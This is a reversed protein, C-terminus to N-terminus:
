GSFLSLSFATGTRNIYILFLQSFNFPLSIQARSRPPCPLYVSLKPLALTSESDLQLEPHWLERDTVISLLQPGCEWNLLGQQHDSLKISDLCIYLISLVSSSLSSLPQAAPPQQHKDNRSLFTCAKIMDGRTISESGHCSTTLSAWISSTGKKKKKKFVHVKCASWLQFCSLRIMFSPTCWSDFRFPTRMQDYREGVRGRPGRRTSLTAMAAAALEWARHMWGEGQVITTSGFNGILRESRSSLLLLNHSYIKILLFPLASPPSSFHPQPFIPLFDSTPLSPESLFHQVQCFVRRYERIQYCLSSIFPSSTYRLPSIIIKSSIPLSSQRYTHKSGSFFCGTDLSPFLM